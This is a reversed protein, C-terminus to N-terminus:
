VARKEEFLASLKNLRIALFDTAVEDAGAQRLANARGNSAIALCKMKAAKAAIVGAVADEIVLGEDPSCNIEKAARVFIAPDPKGRMVDDGTVVASFRGKIKLLELIFLVRSKSGSSAVAAPIEARRLEDLFDFLGAVPNMDVAEDRFMDEKRRGYHVIQDPSMSGLFRVLIDERKRGDLVFDLESDSINRGVSRLFRKWARRHASHSDVIVGDLDFIVGSLM